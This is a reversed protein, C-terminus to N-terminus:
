LLFKVRVATHDTINLLVNYYEVVTM